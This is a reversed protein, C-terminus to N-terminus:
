VKNRGEGTEGHGVRCAVGVGHITSCCMSCCMGGVCWGHTQASRTAHLICLVLACSSKSLVFAVCRCYTGPLLFVILILRVAYAFPPLYTHLALGLSTLLRLSPSPTPRSHHYVPILSSHQRRRPYLMHININITLDLTSCSSKPVVIIFCLLLLACTPCIVQLYIM